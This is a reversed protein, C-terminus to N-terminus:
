YRYVSIDTCTGKMLVACPPATGTIQLDEEKQTQPTEDTQRWTPNPSGPFLSTAFCCSLNFGYIGDSKQCLFAPFLSLSKNTSM